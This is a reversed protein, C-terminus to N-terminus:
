AKTLEEKTKTLRKKQEEELSEKTFTDPSKGLSTESSADLSAELAEAELDALGHRITQYDMGTATHIMAKGGHGILTVKQACWKRRSKENLEKRIQMYEKKLSEVTYIITAQLKKKNM